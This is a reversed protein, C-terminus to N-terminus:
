VGLSRLDDAAEQLTHIVRYHWANVGSTMRRMLEEQEPSLKKGPLKLEWAVPVPTRVNGVPDTKSATPLLFVAFVYDPWGKIGRSKRDMRQSFWVIGKLRLLNEVQAHLDRESRHENDQNIESMLRFDKGLRKREAHDLM